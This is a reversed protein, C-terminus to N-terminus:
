KEEGKILQGFREQRKADSDNSSLVELFFDLEEASFNNMVKEDLKMNEFIKKEM